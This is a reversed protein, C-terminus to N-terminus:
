SEQNLSSEIDEISLTDTNLSVGNLQQEVHLRAYLEGRYTNPMDRAESTCIITTGDSLAARLQDDSATDFYIFNSM